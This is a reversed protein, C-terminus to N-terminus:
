ELWDAIERVRSLSKRLEENIPDFQAIPISEIKEITASASSILESSAEKADQFQKRIETIWENFRVKWPVRPEFFQTEKRRFREESQEQLIEEEEVFGLVEDAFGTLGNQEIWELFERNEIIGDLARRSFELDRYIGKKLETLGTEWDARQADKQARFSDYDIGYSLVINMFWYPAISEAVLKKLESMWSCNERMRHYLDKVAEAISKPVSDMVLSFLLAEEERAEVYYLTNTGKCKILEAYFDFSM